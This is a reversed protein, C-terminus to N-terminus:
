VEVMTPAHQRQVPAAEVSTCAEQKNQQPCSSPVDRPLSASPRPVPVRTHAQLRRPKRHLKARRKSSCCCPQDSACSADLIPCLLRSISPNGGHIPNPKSRSPKAQIPSYLAAYHDNNLFLGQHSGQFLVPLGKSNTSGLQDKISWNSLEMCCGKPHQMEVWPHCRRLALASIPREM